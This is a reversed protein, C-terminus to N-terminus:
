EVGIFSVPQTFWTAVKRGNKMARVWKPMKSLVRMVEKIFDDGSPKTKSITGDADAMFRALLVKREGAELKCPIIVYKTL